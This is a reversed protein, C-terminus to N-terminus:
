VGGRAGREREGRVGMISVGEGRTVEGYERKEGGM